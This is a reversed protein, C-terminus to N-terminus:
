AAIPPRKQSREPTTFMASSPMSRIPAYKPMQASSKERCSPRRREEDRHQGPATAAVIWATQDIWRFTSWIMPPVAILKRASPTM